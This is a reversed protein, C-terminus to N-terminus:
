RRWAAPAALAILALVELRGIVMAAGLILRVPGSLASFELPVDGAVAALPGTTTLSALGLILADSFGVGACTLLALVVTVSMLFLMFFVWALWAGERSLRRHDAGAGSVSDPYVIRELERKGHLFLAYVRLLKVGGATTAVGGGMIALGCLLLGPAGLGSWDRATIWWASEYGTSTLFSVATFAAGWLAHWLGTFIATDGMEVDSILHRLVLVFTVIGTIALGLRLEPDQWLPRSAIASPAVPMLRRSIALFMFGFMLFEGWFGSSSASLGSVVSIGSTSLTGMAHMLAISGREGAILLLLWLLLTLGSYVPLIQATHLWLRDNLGALRGLQGAAGPIRGSIVEAGGLNMPALVAFATLLTFYGGFWGMLGRWLHASPPLQWPQYVTAGTTTFCSLMEFWVDTFTLNEDLFVMPLAMIIPLAFYAGVLTSLQTMAPNEFVLHRTAIGLMGTVAGLMLAGYFFGRATGLDRLILAHAAPILALIAVAALLLVFFPLSRLARLM